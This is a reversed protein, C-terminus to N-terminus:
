MKHLMYFSQLLVTKMQGLQTLNLDLYKRHIAILCVRRCWGFLIPQKSHSCISVKKFDYPRTVSPVIEEYQKQKKEERNLLM